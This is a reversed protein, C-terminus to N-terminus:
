SNRFGYGKAKGNVKSDLQFSNRNQKNETADKIRQNKEELEKLKRAFSNKFHDRDKFSQFAKELLFEKAAASLNAHPFLEQWNPLQIKFNSELYEPIDFVQVGAISIYNAESTNNEGVGGKKIENRNENDNENEMHQVYTKDYTSDHSKSINTKDEDCSKSKRNKSRSESYKKRKDSEDKMRKNFFIDGEKEFKSFIDEDYGGCIKIMDKEYLFGKQHQLCLLRIYQGVQEDSMLMTGSLFDSTYFLVAPDKAM